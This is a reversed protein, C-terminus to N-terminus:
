SLAAKDLWRHVLQPVYMLVDFVLWLISTLLWYILLHWFIYFGLGATGNFFTLNIWDYLEGFNFANDYNFYKDITDAYNDVFAGMIDKDYNYTVTQYEKVYNTPLIRDILYQPTYQKDDQFQKFVFHFPVNEIFEYRLVNNDDKYQVYLRKTSLMYFDVLGSSNFKNDLMYGSFFLATPGSYDFDNYNYNDSWYYCNGAILDDIVDVDNTDYYVPVEETYTNSITIDHRHSYIAFIPAVVLPLMMVAFYLWHFLNKIKM